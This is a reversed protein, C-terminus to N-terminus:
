VPRSLAEAGGRAVARVVDRESIVGVVKDGSCVVLAGVRREDLQACVLSLPDGPGVSFVAGGKQKLIETVLM